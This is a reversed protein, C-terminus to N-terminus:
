FIVLSLLRFNWAGACLKVSHIFIVIALELILVIYM